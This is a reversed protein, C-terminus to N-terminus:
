GDVLVSLGAAALVGLALMFMVDLRSISRMIDLFPLGALLAYPLPVERRRAASRDPRGRPAGPGALLFFISRPLLSGSARVAGTRPPGCALGCPPWPLALVAFGAFM